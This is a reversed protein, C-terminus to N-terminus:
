NAAIDRRADLRAESLLRGLVSVPQNIRHIINTYKGDLKKQGVALEDDIFYCRSNVIGAVPRHIARSGALELVM